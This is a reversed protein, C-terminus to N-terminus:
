QRDGMESVSLTDDTARLFAGTFAAARRPWDAGDNAGDTSRDHAGGSFARHVTPGPVLVDVTVFRVERAVVLVQGIVAGVVV